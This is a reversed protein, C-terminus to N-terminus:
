RTAEGAACAYYPVQKKVTRAKSFLAMLASALAIMLGRIPIIPIHPM